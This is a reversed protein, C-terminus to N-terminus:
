GAGDSQAASARAASAPTLLSSTTTGTAETAPKTGTVTAPLRAPPPSAASAVSRATGGTAQTKQVTAAPKANTKVVNSKNKGTFALMVSAFM